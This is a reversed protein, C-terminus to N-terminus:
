CFKMKFMLAHQKNMFAFSLFIPTNDANDNHLNQWQTIAHDIIEPSFSGLLIGAGKNMDANATSCWGTTGCNEKMWVLCHYVDKVPLITNLEEAKDYEVNSSKLIKELQNIMRTYDGRRSGLVV